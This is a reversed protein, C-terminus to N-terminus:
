RSAYLSAASDKWSRTPKAGHNAVAPFPKRAHSRKENLHPLSSTSSAESRRPSGPEINAVKTGASDGPLNLIDLMHAAPKGGALVDLSALQRPTMIMMANPPTRRGGAHYHIDHSQSRRSGATVPAKLSVRHLSSGRATSRGEQVRSGRPTSSRSPPDDNLVCNVIADRDQYKSKAKISSRRAAPIPCRPAATRPMAPTTAPRGLEMQRTIATPLEAQLSLRAALGLSPPLSPPRTPAEQPLTSAEARPPKPPWTHHFDIVDDEEMERQAMLELLDDDDDDALAPATTSVEGCRPFHDDCHSPVQPSISRAVAAAALEEELQVEAAHMAAAEACREAAHVAAQEADADNALTPNDFVSVRSRPQGAEALTPRLALQEAFQSALESSLIDDQPSSLPGVPASGAGLRGALSSGRDVAGLADAAAKLAFNSSGGVAFADGSIHKMWDENELDVDQPSRCKRRGILMDVEAKDLAEAVAKLAHNEVHGAGSPIGFPMAYSEGYSGFELQSQLYDHEQMQLADTLSPEGGVNSMSRPQMIEYPPGAVATPQYMQQMQEMSLNYAQQQMQEQMQQVQQMHMYQLQQMQLLQQQQESHPVQNMLNQQLNQMQVADAFTAQNPATTSNQLEDPAAQDPCAALQLHEAECSIEQDTQVMRVVYAVPDLSPDVYAVSALEGHRYVLDGVRFQSPDDSDIGSKAMGNAVLDEETAHATVEAAPGHAWNANEALSEESVAAAQGGRLAEKSAVCAADSPPAAM